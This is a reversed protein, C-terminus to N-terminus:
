IRCLDWIKIWGEKDLAGSDESGGELDRDHDSELKVESRKVSEVQSGEFTRDRDRERDRKWPMPSYDRGTWTEGQGTGGTGACDIGNGIGPWDKIPMGSGTERQRVDKKRGAKTSM